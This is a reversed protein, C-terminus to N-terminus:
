NGTLQRQILSYYIFTYQTGGSGANQQTILIFVQAEKVDRVFNVFNIQQRTYNMDCSQCDLFIKVADKRLTDSISEKEQAIVIQSIFVMLFYCLLTTLINKKM